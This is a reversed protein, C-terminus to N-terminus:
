NESNSTQVISIKKDTKTTDGDTGGDSVGDAAEESTAAGGASGDFGLLSSGGSRGLGHIGTQPLAASCVGGDLVTSAGSINAVEARAHILVLAIQSNATPIKILQYTYYM